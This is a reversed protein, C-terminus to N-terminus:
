AELLLGPFLRATPQFRGTGPRLPLPLREALGVLLERVLQEFLEHGSRGHFLKHLLIHLVFRTLLELLLEGHHLLGLFADLGLVDAVGELFIGLIVQNLHALVPDADRGLAGLPEGTIHEPLDPLVKGHGVGPRMVRPLLPEPHRLPELDALVLM